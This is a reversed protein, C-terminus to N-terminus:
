EAGNLELEVLVNMRTSSASKKKNKDAQQNYNILTAACEGTEVNWIRVSRDGPSESALRGDGLVKLTVRSAEHGRLTRTCEGNNVNWVRIAGDASSSVALTHSSLAVLSVYEDAGGVARTLLLADHAFVLDPDHSRRVREGALEHRHAHARAGAGRPRGSRAHVHALERQLHQHSAPAKRKARTRVGSSRRGANAASQRVNKGVNSHVKLGAVSVVRLAQSAKGRGHVCGNQETRRCSRGLQASRARQRADDHVLKHESEVSSRDLRGRVREGTHDARASLSLHGPRHPRPTHGRLRSLEPQPHQHRIDRQRKDSTARRVDEVFFFRSFEKSRNVM